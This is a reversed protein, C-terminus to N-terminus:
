NQTHYQIFSQTMRSWSKLAASYIEKSNIRHSWIERYVTYMCYIFYPSGVCAYVTQALGIYVTYVIRALVLFTHERVVDLMSWPCSYTGEKVKM